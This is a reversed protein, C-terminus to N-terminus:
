DKLKRHQAKKDNSTRKAKIKQYNYQRDKSKCSRIAGKTDKFREQRGLNSRSSSNQQRLQKPYKESMKCFM